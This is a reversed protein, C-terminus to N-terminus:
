PKNTLIIAQYPGLSLETNKFFSVQYKSFVDYYSDFDKNIKYNVITDTLNFFGVCISSDAKRELALVSKSDSIKLPLNNKNFNWLAPHQQKLLNLSRYFDNNYKYKRSFPRSSFLSISEFQPDEQGNLVWPIGPLFYTLTHYYKYANYFVNVDSGHKDTLLYDQLFNVSHNNNVHILISDLDSATLTGEYAKKFQEFLSTNINFHCQSVINDSNNIILMPRISNLSTILDDIYTNPFKDINYLVIGDFKNKKLFSKIVKLLEKQLSKNSHDFKVYDKNYRNGTKVSDSLYYENNTSRWSHHPGTGTFNWELLVKINLKHASDILENLDASTGFLPDIVEFSKVAYPSNPNYANNSEDREFVPLLCISNFHMSKIRTLDEQIGKFNKKDSYQKTMIEYITLKDAWEPPKNEGAKQQCSSLIIFTLFLYNIFKM